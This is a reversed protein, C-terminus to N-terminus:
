RIRYYEFAVLLVRRLQALLVYKKFESATRWVNMCQVSTTFMSHSSILLWLM